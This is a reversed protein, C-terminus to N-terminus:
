SRLSKIHWPPSIGLSAEVRESSFLPPFQSLISPPHASLIWRIERGYLEKDGAHEASPGCQTAPKWLGLLDMLQSAKLSTSEDM